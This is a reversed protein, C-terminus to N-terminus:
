NKGKKNGSKNDDRQDALKKQALKQQAQTVQMRVAALKRSGEAVVQEAKDADRKAVDVDNRAAKLDADSAVAKEFKDTAERVQQAAADRRVSLPKLTEDQQFAAQELERIRAIATTYDKAAQARDAPDDGSPQVAAKAKALAAQAAKYDAQQSLREKVPKANEDFEAQAAQLAQRAATLGTGEAHEKELRDLVKQVAAMATQRRAVAQRLRQQFDRLDSDAQKLKKEVEHLDDQADRVAENERKEDNRQSPKKQEAVALGATSLLTMLATVLVRAHQM